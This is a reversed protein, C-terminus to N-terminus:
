EQRQRDTQKDTETETASKEIECKRWEGSVVSRARCLKLGPPKKNRKKTTRQRWRVGENKKLVKTSNAIKLKSLQEFIATNFRHKHCALADPNLDAHRVYFLLNIFM